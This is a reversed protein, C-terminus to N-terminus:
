RAWFGAFRHQLCNPSGNPRKKRGGCLMECSVSASIAQFRLKPVRIRVSPLGFPSIGPLVSIHGLIHRDLGRALRALTVGELLGITAVFHASNFM